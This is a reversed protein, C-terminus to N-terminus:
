PANPASGAAARMLRDRIALWDESEPPAEILLRGAGLADARRLAGYLERGYAEPQGPMALAMVGERLGAPLPGRHVVVVRRGGKALRAAESWLVASPVLSLATAPAYHIAHSGPVRVAATGATPIRVPHKLVEVLMAPSISGPRLLQPETGMFSVITSEIGVRCPGGDLIVDVEDGLEARVHEATTPSVRGFRNASPAAIGGGFRRLLELAVPHNPVRLGISDQGGTVADPVHPRRRLILTLPGPWFRAALRRAADPIDRAWQDLAVADPLHVILPHDAPRRKIAFVRSVAAVNTANAGLGYVTETPFAVVGGERLRAAAMEVDQTFKACTM